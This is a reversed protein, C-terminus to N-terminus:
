EAAVVYRPARSTGPGRTLLNRHPADLHTACQVELKAAEIGGPSSSQTGLIEFCVRVDEPELLGQVLTSGAAVFLRCIANVRVTESSGGPQLYYHTTLLKILHLRVLEHDLLDCEILHGVFSAVEVFGRGGNRAVAGGSEDMRLGEASAAAFWLFVRTSLDDVFSRGQSSRRPSDRFEKLFRAVSALSRHSTWPLDSVDEVLKDVTTFQQTLALETWYEIKPAIKDYTPIDLCSLLWYIQRSLSIGRDQYSM